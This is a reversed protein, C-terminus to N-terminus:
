AAFVYTMPRIRVACAPETDLSEARNFFYTRSIRRVFDFRRWFIFLELRRGLEPGKSRHFCFFSQEGDAYFRFLRSKLLIQINPKLACLAWSFDLLLCQRKQHKEMSAADDGM